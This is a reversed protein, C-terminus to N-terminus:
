AAKKVVDAPERVLPLVIHFQTGKGLETTVHVQGGMKEVASKVADLGVGRGSLETVTERTSFAADFIHQIVQEDTETAQLGRKKRIVEASIGRGDDSITIRLNKKEEAFAITIRGKPDKGLSEREWPPELGHDLANRFFHVFTPFVQAYAETWIKVEAGLMVTPYIEKELNHALEQMSEAYTEFSKAVPELLYKQKFELALAKDPLTQIKSFLNQAEALTLEVTRETALFKPGLVDNLFTLFKEFAQRIGSIKTQIQAWSSEIINTDTQGQLSLLSNEADHCLETMDQLSFTAAGGKLTHLIRFGTEYHASMDFTKIQEIQGLLATVEQTFTAVGRKNKVLNIVMKAYGREREAVRQAEVLNTIDSAVVVVGGISQDTARLPYYELQIHRGESHSLTTPGLPALDEFPLMETFVTKMWKQFGDVQETPVKLVDWIKKDVPNTEVTRLCAKSFIKLCTGSEDFVFFGQGLSDLLATLLRNLEKIESTREDVLKELNTSYELLSAQAKQLDLIVGEKQELEARYKKQLREELTVDRCFLIWSDTQGDKESFPQVTIQIKGEKGSSSTFSVEKYPSPDKVDQFKTTWGELTVVSEFNPSKLIKRESLDCLNAAAENCYLVKNDTAVIFVPELLTDFIKNTM